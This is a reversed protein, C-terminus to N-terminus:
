AIQSLDGIVAFPKRDIQEEVSPSLRSRMLQLCDKPRAPKPTIYALGCPQGHYAPRAVVRGRVRGPCNSSSPSMFGSPPFCLAAPTVPPHKPAGRDHAEVIPPSRSSRRCRIATTSDM